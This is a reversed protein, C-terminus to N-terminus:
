CNWWLVFNEERKNLWDKLHPQPLIVQWTQRFGNENKTVSIVLDIQLLENENFSQIFSRFKDRESLLSSIDKSPLCCSAVFHDKASLMSAFPCSLKHVSVWFRWIGPWKRRCIPKPERFHFFLLLFLPSPETPIEHIAASYQGESFSVSDDESCLICCSIVQALSLSVYLCKNCFYLIVALRARGQSSWTGPRYCCMVFRTPKIKDVLLVTYTLFTLLVLKGKMCKVGKHNEQQAFILVISYRYVFVEVVACFNKESFDKSDM